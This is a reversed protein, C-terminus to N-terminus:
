ERVPNLISRLDINEGSIINITFSDNQKGHDCHLEVIKMAARVQIQASDGYHMHQSLVRVADDISANNNELANQLKKQTETVNSNPNTQSVIGALELAALAPNKSFQKQVSNTLPRNLSDPETKREALPKLIM